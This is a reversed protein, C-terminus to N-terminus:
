KLLLVLGAGIGVYILKGGVNKFGKGVKKWFTPTKSQWREKLSM